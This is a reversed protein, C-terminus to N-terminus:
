GVELLFVLEIIAQHMRAAVRSIITVLPVPRRTGFILEDDM